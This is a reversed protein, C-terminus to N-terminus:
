FTGCLLMLYPVRDFEIGLVAQPFHASEKIASNIITKPLNLAAYLFPFSALTLVLLAVQQRWSHKIIFRYVSPELDVPTLAPAPERAEIPERSRADPLLETAPAAEVSAAVAAMAKM